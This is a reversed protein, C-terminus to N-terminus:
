WGEAIFLTVQAIETTNHPQFQIYAHDFHNINGSGIKFYEPIRGYGNCWMPWGIGNSSRVTASNAELLNIGGFHTKMTAGTELLSALNVAGGFGFTTKIM